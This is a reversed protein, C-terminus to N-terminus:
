DHDDEEEQDQTANLIDVAVQLQQDSFELPMSMEWAQDEGMMTYVEGLSAIVDRPSATGPQLVIISQTAPNFVLEYGILGTDARILDRLHKITIRQRHVLM